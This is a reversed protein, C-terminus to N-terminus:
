FVRTHTLGVVRKVARSFPPAELFLRARGMVHIAIAMAEAAVVPTIEIISLWRTEFRIGLKRANRAGM